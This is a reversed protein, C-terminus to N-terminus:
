ARWMNHLFTFEELQHHPDRSLDEAHLESISLSAEKDVEPLHYLEFFPIAESAETDSWNVSAFFPNLTPDNNVGLRHAPDKMLLEPAAYGPTGSQSTLTQGGFEALGFDYVRVHGVGDMLVNDPKIDRHIIGFRQLFQIGCVM